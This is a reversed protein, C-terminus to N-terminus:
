QGVLAARLANWDADDVDHDGGFDFVGCCRGAEFSGSGSYCGLFGAVDHLDTDGDFDATESATQCM